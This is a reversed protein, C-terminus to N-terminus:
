SLLSSPSQCTIERKYPLQMVGRNTFLSHVHKPSEVQLLPVGHWKEILNEGNYLSIRWQYSGPLLPLLPFEYSLEYLGPLLPELFTSDSWLLHGESDYLALMYHPSNLNTNVKLVFVVQASDAGYLIYSQQSPKLYWHIFQAPYTETDLSSLDSGNPFLLAREYHPLVEDPSGMMRVKGEHLWIIKHAVQRILDMQHSVFLITRGSNRSVEEIKQLCKRQFYLDGVALAEDIILIEPELHAAVAFGLRTVMGSSYHRLPTDIFSEVEAFSVIADFKRRIEQRTMGLLIGSFYVNERGTLDPHFGAGAELLSGVRGRVYAKGKTPRTVRSLIKLLTSKGSGNKGIIGVVEGRLIEISVNRLAWLYEQHTKQFIGLPNRFFSHIAGRLTDESISQNIAYRKSLEHTSIAVETSM